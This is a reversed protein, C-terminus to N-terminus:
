LRSVCGFAHLQGNHTLEFDHRGVALEAALLSLRAPLFVPKRFTIQASCPSAERDELLKSLASAKLYMGHAIHRRFGFLKAMLPYLHIPNYDGSVRAYRRGVDSALNWNALESSNLSTSQGSPTLLGLSTLQGSTTSETEPTKNSHKTIALNTAKGQYVREGAIKVELQIEFLVGKNHAQYNGLTCNLQYQETVPLPKFVTIQNAVHVLGLPSFPFAPDSLLNLYGSFASVQLWTPPLFDANQWAVVQNFAAVQQVDPIINFAGFHLKPLEAISQAPNGKFLSKLLQIRKVAGEKRARQYM